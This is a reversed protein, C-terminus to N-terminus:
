ITLAEKFESSEKCHKCWICDCNQHMCQKDVLRSRYSLKSVQFILGKFMSPRYQKRLSELIDNKRSAIKLVKDYGLNGLHAFLWRNALSVEMLPLIKESCMQNYSKGTLISNAALYGSLLAYRLGFGWLADQFGAAEGILLVDEKYNRDQNLIFNGFGGFDKPKEIDIKVVSQMTELARQFYIQTKQFDEYLITAFTAQGKNVLLYAYGKAAIENNLFGFCADNHSTRFTIGKAIVDAARPGTGIITTQYHSHKIRDNWIIKVGSDIAQQKLGQDLSNSDTGRKILYFLPRSTRIIYEKMSPGYFTGISYPDCLFNISIGISSLFELADMNTSWNEIGQFDGNFRSGVDSKQEHIVVAIGAKALNIAAVCSAPGAGIIHVRLDKGLLNNTRDEKM